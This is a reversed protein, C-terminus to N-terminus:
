FRFLLFIIRYCRLFSISRLSVRFDFHLLRFTYRSFCYCICFSTKDKVKKDHIKGSCGVDRPVRAGEEGETSYQMQFPRVTQDRAHQSETLVMWWSGCAVCPWRICARDDHPGNLPASGQTCVRTSSALRTYAGRRLWSTSGHDTCCHPCCCPASCPSLGM